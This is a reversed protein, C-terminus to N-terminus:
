HDYETNIPHGAHKKVTTLVAEPNLKKFRNHCLLFVYVKQIKQIILAFKLM